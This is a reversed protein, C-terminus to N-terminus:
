LHQLFMGLCATEYDHCCDLTSVCVQDCYCTGYSRDSRWGASVCSPDRGPCCLGTERCGPECLDALLLCVGLCGLAASGGTGRVAM